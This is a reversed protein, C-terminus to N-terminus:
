GIENLLNRIMAQAIQQNSVQYNGQSIKNELEAIKEERVEPLNSAKQIANNILRQSTIKVTDIENQKEEGAPLTVKININEKKRVDRLDQINKGTLENIKMYTVGSFNKINNMPM